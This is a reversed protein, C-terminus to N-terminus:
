ARNVAMCFLAPKGGAACMDNGCCIAFRNLKHRSQKSGPGAIVISQM